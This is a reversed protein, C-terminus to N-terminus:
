NLQQGLTDWQFGWIVLAPALIFPQSEVFQFILGKASYLMGMGQPFHLLEAPAWM